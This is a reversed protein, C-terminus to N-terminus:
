QGVLTIKCLDIPPYIHHGRVSTMVNTNAHATAVNECTVTTYHDLRGRETGSTSPGFRAAKTAIVVTKPLSRLM